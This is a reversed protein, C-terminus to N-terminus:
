QASWGPPSRGSRGSSPPTAATAGPAVSGGGVRVPRHPESPSAIAWELPDDLQPGQTTMRPCGVELILEERFLERESELATQLQGLCDKRRARNTSWDTDDFARRAAAIARDMEGPSGDAVVGLVEETAPNLNEFTQGSEAAVLKGDILMRTEHHLPPDVTV